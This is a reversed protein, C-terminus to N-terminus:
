RVIGGARRQQIPLPQINVRRDIHVTLQEATASLVALRGVHKSGKRRRFDCEVTEGSRESQQVPHMVSVVTEITSCTANRIM